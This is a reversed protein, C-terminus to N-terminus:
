ANQLAIALFEHSEDTPAIVLAIRWSRRGGMKEAREYAFEYQEGISSTLNVESLDVLFCHCDEERSCWVMTRIHRECSKLTIPGREAIMGVRELAGTSTPLSIVEIDGEQSHNM